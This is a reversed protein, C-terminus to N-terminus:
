RSDRDDEVHHRVIGLRGGGQLGTFEFLCQAFPSDCLDFDEGLGAGGFSDGTPFHAFVGAFLWHGEDSFKGLIVFVAGHAEDAFVDRGVFPIHGLLALEEAADDHHKGGDDQEQEDEVEEERSLHFIGAAAGHLEALATRPQGLVEFAYGEFINGANVLRAFLDDFDDFVQAVWATEVFEATADGVADQEDARRSCSFGEECAGDGTFGVNGEEGDATGIEDLHEDADAGAADAVHEFLGFAVGWADDEDIFDVGDPAGTEAAHATAVVFAFLGEVGEKDFHVTELHVAADDDDGGGVSRVHQVFGEQAGAAEVALDMDFQGVEDAAFLDDLDVDFLDSGVVGDVEFLEGTASGTEAPGVELVEDVFGREGCCTATLFGNVPLVEFFRAVFDHEAFFARPPGHGLFVFLHGRAVFGAMGEDADVAIVGIREVFDGDDGAALHEASGHIEGFAVLNGM